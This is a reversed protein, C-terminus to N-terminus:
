TDDPLFAIMRGDIIIEANTPNLWDGNYDKRLSEVIERDYMVEKQIEIFMQKCDIITM